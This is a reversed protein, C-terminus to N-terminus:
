SFTSIIAKYLDKATLKDKFRNNNDILIISKLAELARKNNYSFKSLRNTYRAGLKASIFESYVYLEKGRNNTKTIIKYYLTKNSSAETRNIYSM